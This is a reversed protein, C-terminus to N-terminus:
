VKKQMRRIHTYRSAYILTFGNPSPSTSSLRPGSSPRLNRITVEVFADIADRLQRPSTFSAGRPGARSMISFWCEVQNPWSSYTPIFHLHVHPHSQLWRDQKPKHTHLNDLVVHIM